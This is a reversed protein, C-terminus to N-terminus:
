SDTKKKLFSAPLKPGLTEPEIAPDAEEAAEEVIETVKDQVKEPAEESNGTTKESTESSKNSNVTTSSSSTEVKSSVKMNDESKETVLAPVPESTNKEIKESSAEAETESNELSTPSPLGESDTLTSNETTNNLPKDFAGPNTGTSHTETAIETTEIESELNLNPSSGESGETLETSGDAVLESNQIPSEETQLVETSEVPNIIGKPDTGEQAIETRPSGGLGEKSPPLAQSTTTTNGAPIPGTSDDPLQLNNPFDPNQLLEDISMNETPMPGIEVRVITQFRDQHPDYRRDFIVLAEEDALNTFTLIKKEGEETAKHHWGDQVMQSVYWPMLDRIQKYGVYEGVWSRFKATGESYKIYAWNEGGSSQTFDRPIPIDDQTVNQIVGPIVHIQSNQCGVTSVTILALLSLLSGWSQGRNM